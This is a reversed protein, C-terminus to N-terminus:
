HSKSLKLNENQQEQHVVNVEKQNKIGTLEDLLTRMFVADNWGEVLLKKTSTNM